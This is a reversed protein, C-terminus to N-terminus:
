PCALATRPVGASTTGLSGQGLAGPCANEARILYSFARKNAPSSADTSTTDAGNSEVCTALTVFDAPNGSSITDYVVSTAGLAVPAAWALTSVGAAHTVNLQLCERPTAWVNGNADDCDCATGNFDGDLNEQLPNPVGPCNDCAQGVNDGDADEQCVNPQFLCDDCADGISDDDLDEQLPNPISPCNDADNALRDGDADPKPPQAPLVGHTASAAEQLTLRKTFIPPTSCNGPDCHDARLGPVFNSSAQLPGADVTGPDCDHDVTLGLPSVIISFMSSPDQPLWRGNLTQYHIPPIAVAGFDLVRQNAPNGVETFVLRPIVPLQAQYTGGERPDCSGMRIAMSGSPQPAVSSLCSQVDWDQPNIGGYTVTIPQLSELHLAVIQIPVVDQTGPGGLLAQDLREVITDTPAIAGAPDTFLPSGGSIVVGSFPDSGPGFFNAPIPTASFDLDTVGSKPTTFLDVGPDISFATVLGCPGQYECFTAAGSTVAYDLVNKTSLQASGGLFRLAQVSEGPLPSNWPPGFDGDADNTLSGINPGLYAPGGWSLRWLIVGADDEFTLTGAPLYGIPIPAMIFDPTLAPVTFNGFGATAILIRDGGISPGPLDTTFNILLVPNAGNADRAVLRAQSVLNQGPARTRLQIAQFSSDGNVGVIVQEIQMLHFTALAPSTAVAGLCLFVATHVAAPLRM